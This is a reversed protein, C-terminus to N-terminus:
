AAWRIAPAPAVNNNAAVRTSLTDRESYSKVM